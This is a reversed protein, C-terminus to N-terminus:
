DGGERNLNQLTFRDPPQPRDFALKQLLVTTKSGKVLNSMELKRAVWHGEVDQIDSLILRKSPNKERKQFLEERVLYLIDKRLYLIRRPYLSKGAKKGPRAEIVWCPRDDVVEDGVLKVTYKSHDFEEMDEYNFDTGVFSAGRDQTAIRRERKMSPLYLWQDPNKGPRGLSLFGVGKVQPPYNFRILLQADGAYGERFSEWRKRRIKGAKNVVTLEGAYEQSETRHRAESEELLKRPDEAAWLSSCLALMLGGVLVIARNSM